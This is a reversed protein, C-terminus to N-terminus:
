AAGKAQTAGALDLFQGAIHMHYMVAANGVIIDGIAIDKGAARVRHARHRDFDSGGARGSIPRADWRCAEHLIYRARDAYAKFRKTQNCPLCAPSTAASHQVFSSAVCQHQWDGIQDLFFQGPSLVTRPM